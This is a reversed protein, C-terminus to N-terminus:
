KICHELVTVLPNLAVFMEEFEEITMNKAEDEDVSKEDNDKSICVEKYVSTSFAIQSEDYYMDLQGMEGDQNEINAFFGFLQNDKVADLFAKKIESIDLTFTDTNRYYKLIGGESNTFPELVNQIHELMLTKVCKEDSFTEGFIKRAIENKGKCHADKRIDKLEENPNTFLITRMKELIEEDTYTCNNVSEIEEGIIDKSTGKDNLRKERKLYKLYGNQLASLGNKKEKMEEETNKKWEDIVKNRMDENTEFIVDIGCIGSKGNILRIKEFIIEYYTHIDNEVNCILNFVLPTHKQGNRDIRGIRQQMVAPSFPLDYNILVQCEQMNKGERCADSCIIISKRKDENCTQKFDIISQDIEQKTNEGTALYVDIEKDPKNFHAYIHKCTAIYHAFIVIHAHEMEYGNQPILKERIVRDLQELKSDKEGNKNRANLYNEGYQKLKEKEQLAIEIKAAIQDVIKKKEPDDPEQIISVSNNENIRILKDCYDKDDSMENEAFISEIYKKPGEILTKALCIMSSCGEHLYVASKTLSNIECESIANYLEKESNNLEVLVSEIKPQFDLCKSISKTSSTRSFEDEPKLLKSENILDKETNFIPTASMFIKRKARSCIKELSNYRISKTQEGSFPYETYENRFNHVEDVILLDYQTEADEIKKLRQWSEAYVVIQANHSMGLGSSYADYVNLMFKTELEEKWQACLTPPALILIRPNATDKLSKKVWESERDGYILESIIIGAEITKGVGVEDAIYLDKDTNEFFEFFPKYQFPEFLIKSNFLAYPIM